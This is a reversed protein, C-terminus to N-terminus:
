DRELLRVFGFAIAAGALQAGIFGPVGAWQIGAFTDTLSRAITVAPNAFSTSSTFWYAGTIYLAVALPTVKVDKRGSLAIVTILGFTAVAESVLLRLESRDHRSAQLLPLGFLVHALMVGAVAGAVQVASYALFTRAPIRKWLLEVLSVAPNFHAGSVHGFCQILVYLGAGTALSNALLAIAANGQSLTEGMVGSGVVVLLLGATGVFEALLAQRLKM